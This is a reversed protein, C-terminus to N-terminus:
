SGYKRFLKSMYLKNISVFVLTIYNLSVLKTWPEIARPHVAIEGRNLCKLYCNRESFGTEEMLHKFPGVGFVTCVVTITRASEVADEAVYYNYSTEDLGRSNM